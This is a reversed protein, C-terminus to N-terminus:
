SGLASVCCVQSLAREACGPFRTASVLSTILVCLEGPVTCEGLVQDGLSSLGPFPLFRMGLWTQAKTSYQSGLGSYSPGPFDMFGLSAKSLEGASCGPAQATYVPFACKCHAPPSGVHDM